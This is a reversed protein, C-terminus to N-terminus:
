IRDVNIPASLPLAPDGTMIQDSVRDTRAAIPTV